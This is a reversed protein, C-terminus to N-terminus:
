MLLLLILQLRLHCKGMLMGQQFSAKRQKLRAETTSQLEDEKTTTKALDECIETRIGNEFERIIERNGRSFYGSEDNV